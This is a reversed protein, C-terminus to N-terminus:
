SMTMVKKVIGEFQRGLCCNRLRELFLLRQDRVGFFPMVEPHEM